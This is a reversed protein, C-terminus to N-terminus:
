STNRERAKKVLDLLTNMKPSVPRLAQSIEDDTYRKRIWSNIDMVAQWCGTINRCFLRAGPNVCYSFPVEHGLLRCYIMKSEHTDAGCAGSICPKEDGM